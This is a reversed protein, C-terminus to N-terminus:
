IEKLIIEKIVFYFVPFILIRRGSGWSAAEQWQLTKVEM